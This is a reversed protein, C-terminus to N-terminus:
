PPEMRRDPGRGNAAAVTAIGPPSTAWPYGNRALAYGHAFLARMFGTDFPEPREAQFDSGIYALRFQVGDRLATLYIRNIDGIGAFHVLTAISRSTISILGRSTAEGEVDMRGNRVVYAIRERPRGGGLGIRRLDISPPWLFVTSAAGGDVHM